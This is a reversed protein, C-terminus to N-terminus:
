APQKRLSAFLKMLADAEVPKVLHHDFGADESSQLDGDQGWGTLAVLVPRTGWREARIRRATDYGNLKPMGIDCLVVDPRFARAAELGAEGDHATRVEHGLMGLLQALSLAFDVNDDVVLIRHGAPGAPAAPAAAVARAQAADAGAPAVAAATALPLQVVFESGAGQGESRAEITGGHMDVLRKALSLGIGLGGTAKELTRDVQTFMGFVTDLMDHPIGIGNDAVAVVAAAESHAASVRIQGGRPTYKAANTLLNSVVQALRIPDGDVFIPADPVVVTLAHGEQEILPRSTELAAAIVERLEIRQRRLELKGTTLRSVDLLDDVLRTMQLLQREMMSRAQEIAGQAGVMRILQLGNRIPALPNRLEHALTALFEDKRRDQDQLQSLLREQEAEAQKRTSIDNFLVAVKRSGEGGLRFAAVDFWRGAMADVKHVVRASVGTAAVRGYTEFWFEELAPLAQRVWRGTLGQMGTHKEFAPNMLEIRYDSPRGAADFAMEIVCFGEDMTSFLTRLREESTRLAAEARVREVAAWTREATDEVIAIETPTWARPQASHAALGAVFRGDKILPVGVYARTQIDAFAQREAASRGELTDVDAEAATRGAEYAAVMQAGFATVPYRGAITPVGDTHDREVVFDSGHVEFYVVRQARLWQGLVRSAEAQVALPDSLPRITDALAVLFTQREENARLREEAQRRETIDRTTGAVAEVEGDAGIVPVFIYDYQRRGHTGTFPVEGRIPRRTARVQDIEADHMQAHWPEYGIELFTKGIAGAADLGWMQLLAENAYVVKHDLSFVYVFDPTNTLVTEYLRRQRESEAALRMVEHETQVLHTIDLNIGAWGLKDGAAGHIPVGRALVSYWVGDVGRCRHVRDWTGQSRVCEQWAAMTAAVDDPHLVDGWGFDACQQQTLGFRRLFSDSAYTNRGSADCVWVGFDISEGIARYRAESEALQQETRKQDDIDTSTGFWKVVQGAANRVPTTRTLFWRYAGDAARRLRFECQLPTGAARAAQWQRVMAPLDDPHVVSALDATQAGAQGTYELWQRNVFDVRGEADCAYVIQPMADAQERFRAESAVLADRQAKSGTIDRIFTTLGGDPTPYGKLAYWRGWPAYFNDFEVTVQEAVARRFETELLTGVVAPFLEWLNRGLVEARRFRNIREAEANVYVIRWDCDYRIFGDTVSELTAAMQEGAERRAAQLTRRASLDRFVLVCGALAGDSGRIPAATDDIPRETGDRAILVVPETLGVVVGDTLARLAPNPAPLRTSESVTNFVQALPQGAAETPTWGTLSEAARNLQTVRGASDTTIVADGISALTTRLGDRQEAAAQLSRRLAHSTAVIGAAVLGYVVLGVWESGDHPAFLCIALLGGAVLTFVAAATRGFWAVAAVAGFFTMFPDNSGLAPNLALRVLTAAALALVAVAGGRWRRWRIPKDLSASGM